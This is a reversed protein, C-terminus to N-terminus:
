RTLVVKKTIVKDDRTIRVFYTGAPQNSIDLKIETTSSITEAVKEGLINFVSIESFAANEINFVGTTPNPYIRLSEENSINEIDVSNEAFTVSYVKKTTGDQATVMITTELNSFSADGIIATADSNNLEYTVTPLTTASPSIFHKYALTTSKFNGVTEGEVKLDKLTADNSGTIVSFQISYTNTISGDFSTVKITTTDIVSTANEQFATASADSLEYTVTPAITTGLPLTYNYNYTDTTFNEIPQGNVLINKLYADKGTEPLVYFYLVYTKTTTDNEATVQITTTGPLSTTETIIDTANPDNTQYSVTPLSTTGFPLGINYNTVEPTFNDVGIGNVLLHSLTADDSATAKVFNVNYTNTNGGNQSTVKIKTTGPISTAATKTADANIDSLIRSVNPIETTNYPVEITYEFTYPNFNEIMIGNVFLVSLYANDGLATEIMFVVTYIKETGDEATVIITCASPIESAQTTNISANTNSKTASVQPIITTGQSLEVIYTTTASNFNAVTVGDVKIDALTADSSQSEVTFLVTYTKTTIGDEATVTINTTVPFPTFGFNISANANLDNTEYTVNPVATTGKPLEISYFTNGPSFGDITIGNVKLNSLTADNNAPGTFDISVNDLLVALQGPESKYHFGIYYVGSSPVIFNTSSLRHSEFDDTNADLDLLLLLANMATSNASTGIFVDMEESWSLGGSSHMFDLRYTSDANLNLCPTFLWDDNTNMSSGIAVYARSGDIGWELTNNIDYQWFSGDDNTNEISWGATAALDNFDTFYPIDSPSLHFVEISAEDNSINIDGPLEPYVDITYTGEVSLNVPTAFTHKYTEYSNIPGPVIETIQSGGNVTYSINFGSIPNTGWNKLTVSVDEYGLGCLSQIPDISIIGADYQDMEFIKINDISWHLGQGEYIFAIKVASQGAYNSLDLDATYWTQSKWNDGDEIGSQILLADDDEQWLTDTSWTSGGDLSILVNINALDGNFPNDQYWYAKLAWFDFSLRTKSPATPISFADTILWEDLEISTGNSLTDQQIVAGHGPNGLDQGKHWQGLNPNSGASNSIITMNNLPWSEFNQSWIYTAKSSKTKAKPSENSSLKALQLKLDNSIQGFVFASFIIFLSLLTIKKM